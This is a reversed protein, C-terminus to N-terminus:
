PDPPPPPKVPETIVHGESDTWETDYMHQDKREAVVMWSVMDDCVEECDITLTSGSVSGRVHHWGTENTTYCQEDRCLLVWTGTTMGAAEDLDVTAVGDVLVATGRYNLDARNSEVFSHVLSHTENLDPHPHDIKFSGSAKSLAGTPSLTMALVASGANYTHFTLSGSNNAGVRNSRIFGLVNNTTSVRNIFSLEGIADDATRTGVIELRPQTSGQLTLAKTASLYNPTVTGIGVDGTSDITVRESGETWLALMNSNHDYVIRGSDPDGVDGFAITQQYDGSPSLFTMGVHTSNEVVLDDAGATATVSGATATQVHLTGDPAAINIGVNGSSLIRMKETAAGSAATAFVIDAANVTASFTANAEAWISAATVIADTGATAIPSRFEIRGLVDNDVITLENTALTLVGAPAAGTGTPGRVDLLSVADTGGIAVNGDFRSLGSDVWLAYDNTAETAAAQIYVSASNDVAGSGVTIQPEHVSLQSVLTANGATVTSCDLRMGTIGASDGSHGTLAGAHYTGYLATSAGGSAFNGAIYFRTYDNTAAGFAHPGAGSVVIDETVTLDAGVVANRSAFLDRPRSAGSKGIDYTNDTFLLDQTIPNPLLSAVATTAALLLSSSTLGVGVQRSFAPASSVIAGPTAGIYYTTGVVVTGASNVEGALRITGATNIAIASVAVGISQPSTSTVAADSDTLYWKGATLAPSEAASSLYVVQGATVAEGVTGEIDLNVSSGPVAQINTQTEIAAGASTTIAFTFNAGAPLYAVYRGASDAVIPNTNASTLAANTYTAAAVGTGTDTTTIKAGSVAVGDGDLVTQYPTPTLTGAM